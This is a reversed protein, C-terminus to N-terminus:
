FVVRISGGRGAGQPALQAAIRARAREMEDLSRYTIDSGDSYRVRQVGSAIARDLRDLDAQTFAM